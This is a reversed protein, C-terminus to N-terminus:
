QGTPRKFAETTQVRTGMRIKNRAELDDQRLQETNRCVKKVVRTGTVRETRCTVKVEPLETVPQAAAPATPAPTDAAQAAAALMILTLQMTATGHEAGGYCIRHGNRLAQM